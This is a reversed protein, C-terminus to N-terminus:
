VLLVWHRGDIVAFFNGVVHVEGAVAGQLARQLLPLRVEDVPPVVHTGFTRGVHVDIQASRHADIWLAPCLKTMHLHAVVAPANKQVRAIGFALDVKAVVLTFFGPLVHGAFVAGVQAADDHCLAVGLGSGNFLLAVQAQGCRAHVVQAIQKLDVHFLAAM